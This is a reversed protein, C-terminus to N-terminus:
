FFAVHRRGRRPNEPECYVSPDSYKEGVTQRHTLSLLVDSGLPPGYFSAFQPLLTRWTIDFYRGYDISRASAVMWMAINTMITYAQHFCKLTYSPNWKMKHRLSWGQNLSYDFVFPGLWYLVSFFFFFRHCHATVYLPKNKFLKCPQEVQSYRDINM